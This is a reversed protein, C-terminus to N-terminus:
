DAFAAAFPVWQTNDFADNAQGIIRVTGETHEAEAYNAGIVAIFGETLGAASFNFSGDDATHCLHAESVDSAVVAVYADSAGMPTWEATNGGSVTIPFPLAPVDISAFQEGGINLDFTADDVVDVSDGAYDNGQDALTITTAGSVATLEGEAAEYTIVPDASTGAGAGLIQLCDDTPIDRYSSDDGEYSEYFEATSITGGTTAIVYWYGGLADSGTDDEEGSTCGASASLAALAM